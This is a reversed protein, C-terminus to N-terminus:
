EHWGGKQLTTRLATKAYRLRSKVTEAGVKTLTAIEDLSMGADAQLVFAERQVDPLQEVAAILAAGLRQNHLVHALDNDLAADHSSQSPTPEDSTSEYEPTEHVQNKFLKVHDLARNRAVTYLWPAVRQETNWHALAQVLKMWTDQFIDSAVQPAQVTRLVYRYLGGQHRAYLTNFAAADGTGYAAMLAEDSPEHDRNSDSTAIDQPPV